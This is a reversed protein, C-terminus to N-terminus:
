GVPRWGVRGGSPFRRLCHCSSVFAVLFSSSLEILQIWSLTAGSVGFVWQWCLLYVSFLPPWDRIGTGYFYSYGEGNMLSVSGQWYAWSDPTFWLGERLIALQLLAAALGTILARSAIRRAELSWATRKPYDSDRRRM